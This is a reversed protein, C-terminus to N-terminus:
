ILVNLFIILSIFRILCYKFDAWHGQRTIRCPSTGVELIDGIVPSTDAVQQKDLVIMVRAISATSSAHSVLSARFNIWSLLIQNGTRGFSTDSQAIQTLHTIGATTSLTAGAATIDLRHLESNVLTRLYKVGSWAARAINPITPNAYAKVAKGMARGGQKRRRGAWYAAGRNGNAM